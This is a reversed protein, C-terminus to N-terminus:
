PRNISRKSSVCHTDFYGKPSEINLYTKNNTILFRKMNSKFDRILEEISADKSYTTFTTSRSHKTNLEKFNREYLKILYKLYQTCVMIKKVRIFFRDLNDSNCSNVIPIPIYKYTKYPQTAKLNLFMRTSRAM